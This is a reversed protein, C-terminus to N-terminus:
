CWPSCFYDCKIKRVYENFFFIANKNRTAKRLYVDLSAAFIIFIIFPLRAILQNINNNMGLSSDLIVGLNRVSSSPDIKHNGVEISSPRLKSLQQRTGIVLFETKTDNLLLRGDTMWKRIDRICEEIACLAM